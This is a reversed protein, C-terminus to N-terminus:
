NVQYIMVIITVSIDGEDCNVKRLLVADLM